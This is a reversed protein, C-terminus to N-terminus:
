KTREKELTTTETWYSAVDRAVGVSTVVKSGVWRALARAKKELKKIVNVLVNSSSLQSPILSQM